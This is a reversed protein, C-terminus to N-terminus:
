KRHEEIILRRENYKDMLSNMDMYDLKRMCSELLIRVRQVKDEGCVVEAM